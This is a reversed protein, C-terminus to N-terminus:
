GLKSLGTNRIFLCLDKVTATCLDKPEMILEGFVNYRQRSLTECRCVLHQVTETEMGSFRCSPDGDFLGITRLGSIAKGKLKQMPEATVQEHRKCFQSIQGMKM